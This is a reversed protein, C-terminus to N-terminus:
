RAGSAVKNNAKLKRFPLNITVVVGGETANHLEFRYDSGYLQELRARTNSLGVRDASNHHFEDKLGPGDDRVKLQVTGNVREARIELHGTDPRPAIGYRIANEVLPQLILSPVCADLTEPDIHTSIELRDSFRTQEIELYSNLFEFEERVSIEHTHANKLAARLLDSLHGLMRNAAEVDRTMLVSITNLTNFLFHPHLQMKLVDLQAQVLQARLQSAALERERYRKYYDYAHTLGVISLYIFFASQFETFLLRKFSAALSFQRVMQNVVVYIALYMAIAVLSFGTGALLHVPLSRLIRGREFPFRRALWSVLPTWLAWASSWALWVIVTRWWSTHRQFYNNSVYAQGAFSLGFLTWFFFVVAAKYHSPKFLTAMLADIRGYAM